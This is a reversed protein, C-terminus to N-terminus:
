AGREACLFSFDRAMGDRRTLFHMIKQRLAWEWRKLCPAFATERHASLCNAPVGALTRGSSTWASPRTERVRM